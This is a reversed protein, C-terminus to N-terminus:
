RMRLLLFLFRRVMAKGFLAVWERAFPKDVKSDESLRLAFLKRRAQAFQAHALFSGTSTSSTASQQLM